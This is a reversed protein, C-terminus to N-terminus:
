RNSASRPDHEGGRNSQRDDQLNDGDGTVLMEQDSLDVRGRCEGDRPVRRAERGLLVRVLKRAPGVAPMGGTAEIAGLSREM